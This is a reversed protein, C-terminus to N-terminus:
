DAADVYVEPVAVGISRLFRYVNLFPLETTEPLAALEESSIAVGRDALIMVVVTAPANPGALRARVYQRTSADGALSVVERVTTGRGFPRQVLREIRASLAALDM